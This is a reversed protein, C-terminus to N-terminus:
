QYYSLRKEVIRLAQAVIGNMLLYFCGAIVIPLVSSETTMAEQARVYLETIGICSVLATDKVLTMFESGMPPVIKKVVQPLIIKFFRQTKTFGLVEAAEYQGRPMSEFGSRYIEAFYAAYNLSMAVIAAVNRDIYIHFVKPPVFYVTVLQLLLPTGRMVLLFLRVPYSFIKIKSMRGITLIMGIPLSFVATLAFIKVTVQSYNLLQFFLKVIAEQSM